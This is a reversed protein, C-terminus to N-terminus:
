KQAPDRRSRPKSCPGVGGTGESERPGWNTALWRSSVFVPTPKIRPELQHYDHLRRHPISPTHTCKSFDFCRDICKWGVLLLFQQKKESGPQACPGITQGRWPLERPFLYARPDGLVFRVHLAKTVALCLSVIGRYCHTA